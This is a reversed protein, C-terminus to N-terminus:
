TTSPTSDALRLTKHRLKQRMLTLERMGIPHIGWQQLQDHIVGTTCLKYDDKRRQWTNPLQEELAPTHLAPHLIIYHLEGKLSSLHLELHKLNKVAVISDFVPFGMKILKKELSTNQTKGLIVPIRLNWAATMMADAVYSQDGIYMHSDIHTIRIGSEIVHNLQSQLEREIDKPSAHAMIEESTPYFCGRSNVLTPVDAAVPPYPRSIGGTTLTFHLGVDLVRSCKHYDKVAQEFGACPAMISTATIIGSFANIIGQTVPECMGFDDAHFVVKNM